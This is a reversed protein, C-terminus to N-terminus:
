SLRVQGCKKYEELLCEGLQTVGLSTVKLDTVVEEIPKKPLPVIKSHMIPEDRHRSFLFL